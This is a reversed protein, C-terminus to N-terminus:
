EEGSVADLTHWFIDEDQLHKRLASRYEKMAGIQQLLHGGEVSLKDDMHSFQKQAKNLRIVLQLYEAKLRDRHDDSCMLGITDELKM